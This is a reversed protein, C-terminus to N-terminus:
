IRSSTITVMLTLPHVPSVKFGCRNVYFQKAREDLAHVLIARVGVIDAARVIRLVADLIFSTRTKGCINAATDIQFM